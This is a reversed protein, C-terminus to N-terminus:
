LILLELIFIQILVVNNGIKISPTFNQEYYQDWAEIRFRTSAVFNDGIEIYQPNFVSYDKGVVFDEGIKKFKSVINQYEQNQKKKQHLEFQMLFYYLVKNKIKRLM